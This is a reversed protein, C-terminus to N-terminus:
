SVGILIQSGTIMGAISSGPVRYSAKAAYKHRIGCYGAFAKAGIQWESLAACISSTVFYTTCVQDVQYLSSLVYMQHPQATHPPIYLCDKYKGLLITCAMSRMLKIRGVV